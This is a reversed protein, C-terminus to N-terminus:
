QWSDPLGKIYQSVKDNLSLKGEQQLVLIAYAIFAKSLSAVM